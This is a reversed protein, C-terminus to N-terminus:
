IELQTCSSFFIKSVVVVLHFPFTGAREIVQSVACLCYFNAYRGFDLERLYRGNNMHCFYDIDTTSCISFIVGEETLHLPKKFLATIRTYALRLFWYVDFSAAVAFGVGFFITWGTAVSAM